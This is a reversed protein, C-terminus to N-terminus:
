CTSLPVPSLYCAGFLCFHSNEHQPNAVSSRLSPPPKRVTSCDGRAHLRRNTPRSANTPGRSPHSVPAWYITPAVCHFCVSLNASHILLTAVSTHPQTTLQILRTHTEQPIWSVQARHRETTPCFFRRIQFPAYVLHSLNNAHRLM